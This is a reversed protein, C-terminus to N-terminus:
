ITATSPTVNVTRPAETMAVQVNAPDVTFNCVGSHFAVFTFNAYNYWDSGGSPESSGWSLWRHNLDLMSLRNKAMSHTGWNIVTFNIYPVNVNAGANIWDTLNTTVIAYGSGDDAISYNGIQAGNILLTCNLSGSYRVDALRITTMSPNCNGLNTSLAYNWNKSTGPTPSSGTETYNQWGVMTSQETFLNGPTISKLEMRNADWYIYNAGVGDITTGNPNVTMNLIVTQGVKYHTVPANVSVLVPETANVIPLMGLVSAAAVILVLIMRIKKSGMKKM